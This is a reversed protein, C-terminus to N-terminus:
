KSRNREEKRRSENELIEKALQMYARAGASTPKYLNVPIGKGSSESISINRPIEVNFTNERFLGRVQSVIEKGLTSRTEYMTLLFGEIELDHNYSSQVRKIIALVQALGEMAFYECQVPILASNSASLANISLLGLSPPCDILIFDYNKTLKSLANKLIKFPEQTTGVTESEFNSLRLNAPAVDVNKVLTKKIIANIDYKGILAEYITKNLLSIDIGYGRSSNGQADFDVILVKKGFNSLSSALNIATTTKGVGGKQNVISIIWSM